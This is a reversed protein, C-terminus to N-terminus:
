VHSTAGSSARACVIFRDTHAFVRDLLEPLQAHFHYLSAGMVFVDARPLESSLLDGEIVDFGLSRAQQCFAPNLDVGTWRVGRERCWTAIVTDAFCLDCVSAVGTGIVELIRAYRVRYQGRYILRMLLRYWFIDRYILSRPAPERQGEPLPM